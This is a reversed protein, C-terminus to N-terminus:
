GASRKGAVAVESPPASARAARAIGRLMGSFVLAHLPYIAYWYALGGLGIPEFIATQRIRAGSPTPDVEFQLWARGPLKMEAALRLLRGPQVERIRWFDLADGTRLVTPHSRGRRMGVGGFLLDVFGRLNWLWTMCYWGTEGGIVEIPRFAAGSPVDVDTARSDVLRSGFRVGGWGREPGASSLADSWRTAAFERSENTLARAIAESLNMPQVEFLERARHDDAVTPHRISDVLKRGIRAYVPTVLGLWLSSLRPTLVPVPVFLRRLGRQRAYEQMLDRYSVTDAGGIDFVESETLPAELGAILYRIVDEVGIPQALTNVWRPTIMIPLKNVLARVMEFSVSGSGIIISARFEITPVGSERMIRGVDQRSSLHPSLESDSGLGGLYIIKRVGADRAALAFNRAARREKEEFEGSDGM